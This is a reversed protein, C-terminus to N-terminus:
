KQEAGAAAKKPKKKIEEIAKMKDESDYAYAQVVATQSGRLTGVTKVIIASKGTKKALAEKVTAQAPTAGTFSIDAIIETRSLLKNDKQTKITLEM